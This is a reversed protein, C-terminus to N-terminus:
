VSAYAYVTWSKVNPIELDDLYKTKQKETTETIFDSLMSILIKLPPTVKPQSLQTFMIAENFLVSLQLSLIAPRQRSLGLMTEESVGPLSTMNNKNRRLLVIETELHIRTMDCFGHLLEEAVTLPDAVKDLSADSLPISTQDKPLSARYFAIQTARAVILIPQIFQLGWYTFNSLYKLSHSSEFPGLLENFRNLVPTLSAVRNPAFSRGFTEVLSIAIQELLLVPSPPLSLGEKLLDLAMDVDFLALEFVSRLFCNVPAYEFDVIIQECNEQVNLPLAKFLGAPIQMKPSGLTTDFWNCLTAKVFWPYQNFRDLIFKSTLPHFVINDNQLKKGFAKLISRCLDAMQQDTGEYQNYLCHILLLFEPAPVCAAQKWHYGLTESWKLATTKAGINQLVRLILKLLTMQVWREADQSLIKQFIFHQFLSSSSLIAEEIVDGYSEKVKGESDKEKHVSLKRRCLSTVLYVFVDQFEPSKFRNNEEEFIDKIVTILFPEANESQKKFSLQLMPFAAQFVKQIAPVVCKNEIGHRLIKEVSHYPSMIIFFLLQSQIEAFKEAHLVLDQHDGLHNIAQALRTSFNEIYDRHDYLSTSCLKESVETFFLKKDELSSLGFIKELVLMFKLGCKNKENFMDKWYPLLKTFIKTPFKTSPTFSHFSESNLINDMIKKDYNKKKLKKELENIKQVFLGVNDVIPVDPKSYVEERMYIPTIPKTGKFDQQFHQLIGESLQDKTLYEFTNIIGEMVDMTSDFQLLMSPPIIGEIQRCRYVEFYLKIREALLIENSRSISKKAVKDRLLPKMDTEAFELLSLVKDSCPKLLKFDNAITSVVDLIVKKEGFCYSFVSELNDYLEIGYLVTNEFKTLDEFAAESSSKTTM